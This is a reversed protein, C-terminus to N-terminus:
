PLAVGAVKTPIRYLSTSACVYLERLDPGGWTFNGVPEPIEVIGLHAGDAGFVWVGGPGTVWVNGFRDCKMGDPVGTSPDGEGISEAFLRGARLGGSADVEFVKVQGRPTDNVYLRSADPSFCLGNPMDFEDEAVVLRVDDGPVVRYVGQFDLESEREVGFGPMRGYRPDSFYISGDRAVVVDNPSHLEKGRFHSALVTQGGDADERVVRSTAHECVVLGGTGDYAMGNCKNSPRRVERVGHEPDWSRRTDGPMDSFLLQQREASWVPGETFQFGSGLTTVGADPAILGTMRDSLVTVSM